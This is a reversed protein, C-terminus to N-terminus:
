SRFVRFPGRGIQRAASTLAILSMLAYGVTWAASQSEVWAYWACGGSLITVFAAIVSAIFSRRRTLLGWVTVAAAALVTAMILFGYINM